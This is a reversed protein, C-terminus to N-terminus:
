EGNVCESRGSWKSAKNLKISEKTKSNEELKQTAPEICKDHERSFYERLCICASDMANESSDKIALSKTRIAFMTQSGDLKKDSATMTISKQNM